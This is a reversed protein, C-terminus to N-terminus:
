DSVESEVQRVLKVNAVNTRMAETGWLYETGVEAPSTWRREFSTTPEVLFMSPKFHHSNM